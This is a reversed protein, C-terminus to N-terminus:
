IRRYCRRLDSRINLRCETGPPLLVRAHFLSRMDSSHEIEPDTSNINAKIAELVELVPMARHDVYVHRKWWRRSQWMGQSCAALGGFNNITFSIFQTAKYLLAPYDEKLNVIIEMRETLNWGEWRAALCPLRWSCSVDPQGNGMAIGVKKAAFCSRRTTGLRTSWSEHPAWGQLDHNMKSEDMEWSRVIERDWSAETSPPHM